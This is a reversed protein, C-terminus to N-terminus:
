DKVCRVYFGAHKDYDVSILNGSSNIMNRYYGSSPTAETSSWWYGNTGMLGFSGSQSRYGGPLATFGTENTASNPSSWHATGKEKLKGGSVSAGGLYTELTTWEADTAVHWGTPCVNKPNTSAVAYWNYLRGYTVSYTPVNSYDCYAGSSLGAWATNDTVDPIATTGDNYKTTKLNEAMWVQTGIAVVPYINFDGDRCAVFNFNITKSSAPVDTIITRYNGSSGTFKLRDGTTYAMDVTAELGRSIKTGEKKEITQIISGTNEISLNGNANGNSVLKGTFQFGDGKINVLYIGNKLGSLKFGQGNKELYVQKRAVPKGTMENISIFADGEFPPFIELTTYDNMPNPYIKLNSSQNYEPSTVGTTITLNLIDSGNLTLSTGSTLNEVIVTTVTTSAGTATFSVLYNQANLQIMTLIALGSLLLKKM